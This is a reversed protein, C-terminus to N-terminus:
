PQPVLYSIHPTHAQRLHASYHVCRGGFTHIGTELILETPAIHPYAALQDVTLAVIGFMLHCLVKAHHRHAVRRPQLRRELDRGRPGRPRALEKGSAADWVRATKDWSATVIRAGDPSFAAFAVFGTHGALVARERLPVLL